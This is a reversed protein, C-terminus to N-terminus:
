AAVPIIHNAYRSEHVRRREQELHFQYYDDFDGNSRVARLKLVAEAGQVSWRAGTIDMRDAVLYRCTGEIVGSAIPWGAELATPYDLYPAKNTLYTACADAKKRKTASLASATARRRIGAAVQRANGDLIDLAKARVWKEAAADGEAFFCWAAAWLYGMVHILDIIITVSIERAAAEAGIREIQHNNGDVLAIWQRQHRPDRNDAEDFVRAVVEAADEVVSATVWKAKAVPAPTPEDNSGIIDTPRRPVPTIDYVAGVEALRKRYRKEGKSLRSDLKATAKAAAKETAPRLSDPRMVIGKGDCSLVLVDSNYGPEPVFTDYFEEIDAAARATLQEVQRKGMTTGTARGIAEAAADFSGRSAEIAALRRLGHSHKEEPLNLVADAPHLNASGRRRYALREVRVQGFITTLARSHGAEVNAHEAGKVGAVVELRAEALARLDLHDQFLQRLLDRGATDLHDEVEAHSLAATKQAGLFSVVEEFRERSPAFGDESGCPTDM